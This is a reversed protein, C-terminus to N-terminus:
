ARAALEAYACAIHYLSSAPAPEDVFGGEALGKDRWLGPAVGEFYRMLAEGAEVAAAQYATKAQVDAEGDALILAAKLRETQPWLRARGDAVTMDDLLEDVAAGSRRDVGREGIAFLTRAAKLAEARGRLRGWRELLWAWEFQHGPEILRGDRGPAPSWDATFNEKVAGCAPDILKSLGLEAQADALVGWAPDSGAETWALAAELLHMQPDAQYALGAPEAFGGAAHSQAAKLASLIALAEAELAGAQDPQMRAAYAMALLAFCQDYVMATDDIPAGDAGVLTRYLGDDRRYRERLFSLGHAVAQRWPGAWGLTGALAYVFTQRGQVRARRPAAVPAGKQDILEQFGGLEHDAGLSWWLPLASAFLWLGFRDKLAALAAAPDVAAIGVEPRDLAKLRDVATKVGQSSALDCVLIADAQTIVGINRLGVGVVLSGGENRIFSGESDIALADGQVVNGAEDKASAAWVAEWAGVDSWAFDAPLVAARETKEMVAYDISIKPASLFADGLQVRGGSTTAEAVSRIAAQALDPTYRAMEDLLMRAGFVFNGSNWLYGADVYERALAAGPKEVFREIANLGPHGALAAGPAIYGYATSAEAPRVGFTVIAGDAAAPAATEVARRFAAADPIHHDSAVMAVVGDPDREAVWAAAAALAPGSDRGEPEIMVTASMGLEALQREIMEVHVPGAVILPQQGGALGTMRLVTDQFLSRTGLLPLFPKARGGRSMPWLRAGAGGCLIIPHIRLAAGSGSDTM